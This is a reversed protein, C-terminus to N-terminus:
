QEIKNIKRLMDLNFTVKVNEWTGHGQNVPIHPIIDKKDLVFLEPTKSLIWLHFVYEHSTEAVGWENRTVYFSFSNTVTTAKVEIRLPTPNTDSVCSLLDYGSLNSEISQWIPERGTREREYELSLEEGTRGIELQTDQQKGRAIAALMDWWEIVDSDYSHILEAEKFCQKVNSPFFQFAEKRGKHILYSWPPKYTEVLHKLQVRLSDRMSTQTIVENGFESVRITGTVDLKIWNCEEAVALVLPSSTAEFRKFLTSFEATKLPTEKIFKLFAQVSYLIGVSFTM